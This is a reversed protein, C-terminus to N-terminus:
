TEVSALEGRKREVLQRIEDIKSRYIDLKDMEERVSRRLEELWAERSKLKKLTRESEELAIGVKAADPYKERHVHLIDEIELQNSKLMNLEEQNHRQNELYQHLNRELGKWEVRAAELQRIEKETIHNQRTIDDIEDQVSEFHAPAPHERTGYLHGSKGSVLGSVYRALESKINLENSQRNFNSIQQHLDNLRQDLGSIDPLQNKGRLPVHYKNCFGMLESEMKKQAQRLRVEVKSYHAEVEKK